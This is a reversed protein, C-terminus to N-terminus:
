PQPQGGGAIPPPDPEDLEDDAHWEKIHKDLGRETMFGDIHGRDTISGLDCPKGLLNKYPCRFKPPPPPDCPLPRGRDRARAIAKRGEETHAYIWNARGETWEAKTKYPNSPDKYDNFWAPFAEGYKEKQKTAAALTSPLTKAKTTAKTKAETEAKGESPPLFSRTSEDGAKSSPGTDTGNGVEVESVVVSAIVVNPAIKPNYLNQVVENDPASQSGCSKSGDDVRYVKIMHAGRTPKGWKDAATEGTPILWGTEEMRQHADIVTNKSLNTLRMMTSLSLWSEQGTQEYCWHLMWLKFANGSLAKLIELRDVDFLKFRGTGDLISEIQELSKDM